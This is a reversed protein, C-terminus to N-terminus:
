ITNSHSRVKPAVYRNPVGAGMSGGAYRMKFSFGDGMLGVLWSLSCSWPSQVCFSRVCFGSLNGDMRSFM